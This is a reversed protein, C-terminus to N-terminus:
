LQTHNSVECLLSKCPHLESREWVSIQLNLRVSLESAALAAEPTWGSARRQRDVGVPYELWRVVQKKLLSLYHVCLLSVSNSDRFLFGSM